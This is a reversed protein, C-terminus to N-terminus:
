RQKQLSRFRVPTEAPSAAAIKKAAVVIFYVFAPAVIVDVLYHIHQLLLLIAVVITAVLAVAKEWKKQLMLFILFMSSTHGSFFLDKTIQTDRYFPKLIPDILPVLGIPPELPILTITTMRVLSLLLCSWLFVLFRYPHRATDVIALVVPLM